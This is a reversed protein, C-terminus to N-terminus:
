GPSHNMYEVAQPQRYASVTAHGNGRLDQAYFFLERLALQGARPCLFVEASYPAPTGIWPVTQRRRSVTAGQSTKAAFLNTRM